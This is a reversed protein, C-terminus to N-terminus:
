VSKPAPDRARDGAVQRLLALADLRKQDVRGAPLWGALRRCGEPDFGAAAADPLLREWGREPYFVAEALGSCGRLLAGGRVGAERARALTAPLNVMAESGAVYGAEAPGQRVAVEDDDSLAGDRYAEFVRGVGVMGFRELEAARLAGMSSAGYVHVGQAMAWLVEKHLVSPTSEFFGDIIGIAWPRKQAAKYVDGIAAPPLYEADLIKAAEAPPLTPGTFICITM